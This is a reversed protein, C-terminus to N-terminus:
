NNKSGADAEEIEPPANKLLEEEYLLKYRELQNKLETIESDKEGMLGSLRKFEEENAAFVLRSSNMFLFTSVSFSVFFVSLVLFPYVWGYKVAKKEKNEKM